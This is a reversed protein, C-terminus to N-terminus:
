CMDVDDIHIALGVNVHIPSIFSQLNVTDIAYNPLVQIVQSMMPLDTELKKIVRQSGISPLTVDIRFM